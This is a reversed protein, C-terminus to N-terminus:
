SHVLVCVCVCVCVCLVCLLREVGHTMMHGVYADAGAHEGIAVGLAAACQLRRVQRAPGPVRANAVLAPVASNKTGISNNNDDDDDSCLESPDRSKSSSSSSPLLLCDLPLATGIPQAVLRFLVDFLSRGDSRAALLTDCASTLRAARRWVDFALTAHADHSACLMAQFMTWLLAELHSTAWQVDFLLAITHLAAARVSSMDHLCFPWLLPISAGSSPLTAGDDRVRGCLAGLLRLIGGGAASLTACNALQQWV